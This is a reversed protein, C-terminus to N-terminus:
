NYSLIIGIQTHINRYIYTHTQPWSIAQSWCKSCCFIWTAVANSHQSMWQKFARVKGFLGDFKNLLKDLGDHFATAARKTSEASPYMSYLFKRRCPGVKVQLRPNPLDPGASLSVACTFMLVYSCWWFRHMCIFHDLWLHWRIDIYIIISSLDQFSTCGCAYETSTRCKMCDAASTWCKSCTTKLPNWANEVYRFWLVWEQILLNFMTPCYSFWWVEILVFIFSIKADLYRHLTNQCYKACEAASSWCKSCSTKWANELYRFWKIVLGMGPDILQVYQSSLLHVM